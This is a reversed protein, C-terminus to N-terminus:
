EQNGKFPFGIKTLLVRTQEANKGTTQVNVQLSIPADDKGILEPFVTHDKIGLSYGGRGDFASESIGRFDRVRPLTVNVLKDLFEYMREGRLTVMAGIPMGERLKFGAISKKAKTRVPKQGTIVVLADEAEEIKKGDIVARGVGANVIVKEIRPIANPNKISLIEAIEAKIKTLYLDKLRSM